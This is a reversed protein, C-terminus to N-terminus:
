LVCINKVHSSMFAGGSKVLITVEGVGRRYNMANFAITSLPSCVAGTVYIIWSPTPLRRHEERVKVSVVYAEYLFRVGYQVTLFAISDVGKMNRALQRMDGKM